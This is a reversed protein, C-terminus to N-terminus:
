ELLPTRGTASFSYTKWKRWSVTSIKNFERRIRRVLIEKYCSTRLPLKLRVTPFCSVLVRVVHCWVLPDADKGLFMEHANPQGFSQHFRKALGIASHVARSKGTKRQLHPKTRLLLCVLCDILDQTRFETIRIWFLELPIGLLFAEIIGLHSIM